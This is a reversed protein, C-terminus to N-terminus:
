KFLYNIKDFTMDSFLNGNKNSNCHLKLEPHKSDIIIPFLTQQVMRNGLLSTEFIFYRKM